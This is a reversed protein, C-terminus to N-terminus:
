RRCPWRSPSRLAHRPISIKGASSRSPTPYTHCPRQYSNGVSDRHSTVCWCKPNRAKRSNTILLTFRALIRERATRSRSILWSTISTQLYSEIEAM